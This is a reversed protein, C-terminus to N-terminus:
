CDQRSVQRVNNHSDLYFHSSAFSMSIWCGYQSWRECISQLRDSRLTKAKLRSALTRMIPQVSVGKHNLAHVRSRSQLKLQQTVRAFNNSM